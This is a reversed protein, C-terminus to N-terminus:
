VRTGFAHISCLVGALMFAGFLVATVLYDTAYTVIESDIYGPQVDQYMVAGYMPANMYDPSVEFAEVTPLTQVPQLEQVQDNENDAPAFDSDYVPNQYVDEIDM